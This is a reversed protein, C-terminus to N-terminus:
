IACYAQPQLVYYLFMVYDCTVSHPAITSASIVHIDVTHLGVNEYGGLLARTALPLIIVLTCRM